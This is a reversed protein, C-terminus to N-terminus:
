LENKLVRGEIIDVFHKYWAHQFASGDHMVDFANLAFEKHKRTDSRQFDYVYEQIKGYVDMPYFNDIMDRPDLNCHNDIDCHYINNSSIFVKANNLKAILNISFFLSGINANIFNVDLGDIIEASSMESSSIMDKIKGYERYVDPILIYIEEPCGFHEIYSLVNRAIESYTASPTGVNYYGSLAAYGGLHEFLKYSWVDELLNGQGFTHSCGAFLVHKKDGHDEVFEDSRFCYNNLSYFEDLTMDPYVTNVGTITQLLNEPDVHPIRFIGPLQDPSSGILREASESDSLRKDM